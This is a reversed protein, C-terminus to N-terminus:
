LIRDGGFCVWCPGDEAFVSRDPLVLFPKGPHVRVITGDPFVVQRDRLLEHAEAEGFELPVVNAKGLWVLTQRILNEGTRRQGLGLRKGREELRRALPQVLGANAAGGVDEAENRGDAPRQLDTLVPLLERGRRVHQ